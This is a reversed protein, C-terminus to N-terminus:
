RGLRKIESSGGPNEKAIVELDISTSSQAGKAPDSM